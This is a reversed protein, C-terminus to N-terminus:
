MEKKIVNNVKNLFEELSGKNDITVDFNYNDLDRESPDESPSTEFRNIRVTILNEGFAEKLQDVESRYRLDSIVVLSESDSNVKDVVRKVWYNTRVSRKVSGELICLARPTWYGSELEKSMFSHVLENFKDKTVVPLHKIPKEKFEPNDCHERPINYQEAVIDKLTDAFGFRTFNHEKILYDAATDKGSGKWASIAVVKTM